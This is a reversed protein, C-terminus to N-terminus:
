LMEESPASPIPYSLELDHVLDGLFCYHYNFKAASMAIESFYKHTVKLSFGNLKAHTDTFILTIQAGTQYIKQIRGVLDNLYNLCKTDPHAQEFRPGKGWYLVFAIPRGLKVAKTIVSKLKEISDPQERKFSWTNFSKIIDNVITEYFKDTKHCNGKLFNDRKPIVDKMYAANHINVSTEFSEFDLKGM